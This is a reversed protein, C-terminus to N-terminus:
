IYEVQRKRLCTPPTYVVVGVGSEVTSLSTSALELKDNHDKLGKVAGVQLIEPSFSVRVRGCFLLHEPGTGSRSEISQATIFTRECALAFRFCFPVLTESKAREYAM